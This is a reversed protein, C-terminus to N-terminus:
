TLQFFYGDVKHLSLQRIVPANCVYLWPTVQNYAVIPWSIPAWSCDRDVFPSSAHSWLMWRWAIHKKAERVSTLRDFVFKSISNLGSFSSLPSCKDHMFYTPNPSVVVIAKMLFLAEKPFRGRLLQWFILIQCRRQPMVRQVIQISHLSLTDLWFCHCSDLTLCRMQSSRMIYALTAQSLTTLKNLNTCARDFEGWPNQGFKPHYPLEKYVPCSSFRM